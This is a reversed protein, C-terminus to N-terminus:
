VGLSEIFDKISKLQANNLIIQDAYPRGNVLIRWIYRLKQYFSMKSRFSVPHEYIAMDAMKIDSEYNIVLVESECDCQLFLKNM